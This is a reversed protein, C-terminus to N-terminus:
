IGPWGHKRGKWWDIIKFVIDLSFVVLVGAGCVCIMLILFSKVIPDLDSM